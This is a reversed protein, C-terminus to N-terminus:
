VKATLVAGFRQEMRMVCSLVMQAERTRDVKEGTKTCNSCHGCSEHENQDAFYNLIYGPLCDETHCYNIMDRLKRYELSKKDEDLDSREILFKQLHSDQGSFLLICDSPEGDRGARGAEQYYAEINMPLSYHIVFRVNSKDIGMGFANTAVM